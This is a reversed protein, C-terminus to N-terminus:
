YFQMVSLLCATLILGATGGVDVVLFLGPTNICDRLLLYIPQLFSDWQAAWHAPPAALRAAYIVKVFDWLFVNKSRTVKVKSGGSSRCVLLINVHNVIPFLSQHCPQFSFQGLHLCEKSMKPSKTLVTDYLNKYFPRANISTFTCPPKNKCSKAAYTDVCVPNVWWRDRNYYHLNHKPVPSSDLIKDVFSYM